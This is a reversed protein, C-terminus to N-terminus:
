RHLLLNRVSWHDLSKERSLSSITTEPDMRILFPCACMPTEDRKNLKSYRRSKPRRNLCRIKDQFPQKTLSMKAINGLDISSIPPTRRLLTVRQCHTAPQTERLVRSYHLKGLRQDLPLPWIPSPVTVPLLIHLVRRKIFTQRRQPPQDFVVPSSAVFAKESCRLISGLEEKSVAEKTGTAGARHPLQLRKMGRHITENM